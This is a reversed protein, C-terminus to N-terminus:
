HIVQLSRPCGVRCRAARAACKTKRCRLFPPPRSHLDEGEGNCGNGFFDALPCHVAPEGADDFWIESVM